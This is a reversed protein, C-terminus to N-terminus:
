PPWAEPRRNTLLLLPPLRGLEFKGQTTVALPAGLKGPHPSHEQILHIDGALEEDPTSTSWPTIIAPTGGQIWWHTEHASRLMGCTLWIREGGLTTMRWAPEGEPTHESMLVVGYGFTFGRERSM